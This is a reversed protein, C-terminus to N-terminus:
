STEDPALAWIPQVFFIDDEECFNQMAPFIKLDCRPKGRAHETACRRFEHEYDIALALVLAAVSLVLHIM